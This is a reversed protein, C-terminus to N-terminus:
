RNANVAILSNYALLALEDTGTVDTSEDIALYFAEFKSARDRLGQELDAALEDFLRTV